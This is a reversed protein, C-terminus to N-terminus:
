EDKLNLTFLESRMQSTIMGLIKQQESCLTLLKQLYDIEYEYRNLEKTKAIYAERNNAISAATIEKQTYSTRAMFLKSKTHANIGGFWVEYDRKKETYLMKRISLEKILTAVAPFYDVLMRSIQSPSLTNDASITITFRESVLKTLETLPTM